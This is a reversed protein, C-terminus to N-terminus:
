EDLQFSIQGATVDYSVPSGGNLFTEGVIFAQEQLATADAAGTSKAYIMKYFSKRAVKVAVGALSSPFKAELKIMTDSRVELVRRLQGISNVLNDHVNIETLFKTGVGTVILGPDTVDTNTTSMTGTKTVPLPFCGQAPIVGLIPHTIGGAVVVVRYSVKEENTIKQNLM